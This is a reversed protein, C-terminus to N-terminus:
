GMRKLTIASRTITVDNGGVSTEVAISCDFIGDTIYTPFVVSTTDKDGIDKPEKQRVFSDLGVTTTFIASDNTDAMEWLYTFTGEYWGTPLGTKNMAIFQVQGDLNTVTVPAPMIEVHFPFVDTYESM